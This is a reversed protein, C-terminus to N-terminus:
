HDHQDGTMPPSAVRDPRRTRAVRAGARDHKRRVWLQELLQVLCADNMSDCNQLTLLVFDKARQVDDSM